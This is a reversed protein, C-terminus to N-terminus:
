LGGGIRLAELEESLTKIAEKMWDIRKGDVHQSFGYYHSLDGYSHCGAAFAKHTKDLDPTPQAAQANFYNQSMIHGRTISQPCRKLSSFKPRHVNNPNTSLVCSDQVSERGWYLGGFYIKQMQFRLRDSLRAIPMKHKKHSSFWVPVQQVLTPINLTPQPYTLFDM